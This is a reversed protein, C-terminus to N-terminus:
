GALALAARIIEVFGDPHSAHAGHGAGEVVMVRADPLLRQWHDTGDRHQDNSESGRGVIVPVQVAAPDYPAGDQIAQLDALMARGEARRAQRTTTSLREWVDDGVISRMFTQAADAPTGGDRVVRVALGGSTDPPWWPMWALPTEFAVVAKILDPRLLAALLAVHGGYSHGVAVVPARDALWDILEHADGAVRPFPPAEAVRSGYGARDCCTVDIGGATLRRVVKAFSGARDM